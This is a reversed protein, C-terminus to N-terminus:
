KDAAEAPAEDAAGAEAKPADAKSSDDAKKAALAEQKAIFQDFGDTKRLPELEKNTKLLKFDDFGLEVAEALSARAAKPDKAALACAESYLM